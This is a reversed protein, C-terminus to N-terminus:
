CDDTAEEAAEQVNRYIRWAEYGDARNRSMGIEEAHAIAAELKGFQHALQAIDSGIDYLRPTRKPDARKHPGKPKLTFYGGAKGTLDAAIKQQAVPSLMGQALVDLLPTLNKTKRFENWELLGAIAVM